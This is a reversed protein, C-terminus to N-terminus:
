LARVASFEIEGRKPFAIGVIDWDSGEAVIRDKVGMGRTMDNALVQFTAAQSGQEAAAQRREDGKGWFIAAWAEGLSAWSDVEQGADDQVPTSRQFNVLTNRPGATM